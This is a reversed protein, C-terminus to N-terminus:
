RSTPRFRMTTRRARRSKMPSRIPSPTTVAAGQPETVEGTDPNISPVQIKWDSAIKKIEPENYGIHELERFARWKLSHCAACVESYVQFGRQLQQNDFKGFPGDSALALHKPHLHFEERCWAGRAAEHFLHHGRQVALDAPRGAFGLGVLFGFVRVM